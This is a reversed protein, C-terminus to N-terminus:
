NIQSNNILEDLIGMREFAALHWQEPKIENFHIMNYVDVLAIRDQKDANDKHKDYIRKFDQSTMSQLVEKFQNLKDNVNYSEERKQKLKNAVKIFDKIGKVYYPIQQGTILYEKIMENYAKYPDLGNPMLYLAVMSEMMEMEKKTRRQKDM